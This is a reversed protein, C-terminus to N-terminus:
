IYPTRVPLTAVGNRFQIDSEGCLMAGLIEADYRDSSRISVSEPLSPFQHNESTSVSIKNYSTTTRPQDNYGSNELEQLALALALDADIDEVGVDVVADEIIIEPVIDIAAEHEETKEEPDQLQVALEESMIDLLSTSKGSPKPLAWVSM